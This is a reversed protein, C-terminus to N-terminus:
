FRRVHLQLHKVHTVHREIWWGTIMRFGLTLSSTYQDETRGRYNQALGGTTSIASPVLFGIGNFMVQFATGKFARSYIHGM